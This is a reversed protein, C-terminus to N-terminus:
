AAASKGAARLAAEIRNVGEDMETESIILAPLVRVVNHGAGVTLVGHKRLRAVMEAPAGACVLGLMLGEGRVDKLQDPYADVLRALKQKLLLGKRSVETLFGDEFVLDLVANGVAMALPNGGYTSGHSGVAMAESAERTALCAGLPFGGGIAKAIAMVDPTVGAWEHAFLRGTRGMGCQIEDLVMLLGHEDCLERIFRLFEHPVPRIGGEGQIPEILIGATEPGIAAKLADRDAFAVQDFGEVNPAFGELYKAQGGAAITALTRGHFAGEFTIIRNKQPQGKAHHYRRVTKIACEMAEGGSNTFFVRDAFSAACLRRGLEVQGPIEFINSVHWLKEAQRKLAEVLYPHAHGFANVAIGGMLDLYREGSTTELWVGEGREFALEARAYTAYLPSSLPSAASM